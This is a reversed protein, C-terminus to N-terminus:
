SKPTMKGIIFAIVGGSIGSMVAVAIVEVLIVLLTKYVNLFALNQLDIALAVPVAITIAGLVGGIFTRIGAWQDFIFAYLWSFAFNSLVLPLMDPMPEKMLGPYHFTNAKLFSDLAVGFIVFGLGFMVITGVIAAVLVRVNM